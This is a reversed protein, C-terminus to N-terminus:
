LEVIAARPLGAATEITGLQPTSTLIELGRDTVLVTDESKGGGTVSPNWALACDPPLVTPDDTSAFVERGRYGTLGGQHHLRWEGPLGAAAYASTLVHFLEGLTSGPRSATLVTADLEAAIRMVEQLAGPPPGFAVIRTMSVHLGEREATVAILAFGGLRERTPLPHRHVPARGEGGVLVVPTTFGYGFLERALEAGAELESREPRLRELAAAFGAAADAGAARYRDLEEPGLAIRLSRLDPEPLDVAPAEDWPHPLPEYGLEEWREEAAARSCEIDQYLVQARDETVVVTYPSVGTVVPRGRGCLLWRVDAPDSTAFPGAVELAARRKREPEATSM